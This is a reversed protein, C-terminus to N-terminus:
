NTNQSVLNKKVNQSSKNDEMVEKAIEKAKPNAYKKCGFIVGKKVFFNSIPLTSTAQECAKEVVFEVVEDSLTKKKGQEKLSSRIQEMAIRKAKDTFGEESKSTANGPQSSGMCGSLLAAAFLAGTTTKLFKLKM